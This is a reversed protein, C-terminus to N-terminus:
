ILKCLEGNIKRDPVSSPLIESLQNLFESYLNKLQIDHRAQIFMQKNISLTGNDLQKSPEQYIYYNLDAYMIQMLPNYFFNPELRIIFHSSQSVRCQSFSIHRLDKQYDILAEKFVESHRYFVSSNVRTAFRESDTHYNYRDDFYYQVSTM